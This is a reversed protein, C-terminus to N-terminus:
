NDGAIRLLWDQFVSMLMGRNDSLEFSLKEVSVSPSGAFKRRNILHIFALTVIM